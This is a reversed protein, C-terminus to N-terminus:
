HEGSDKGTSGATENTKKAGIVYGPVEKATLIAGDPMEFILPVIEEEDKEEGRKERADNTTKRGRGTTKGKFAPSDKGTGDGHSEKDPTKVQSIGVDLYVRFLPREDTPIQEPVTPAAEPTRSKVRSTKARPNKNTNEKKTNM